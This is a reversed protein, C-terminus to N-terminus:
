FVVDYVSLTNIDNIQCYNSGCGTHLSLGFHTALKFIETISKLKIFGYPWVMFIYPTNEISKIM